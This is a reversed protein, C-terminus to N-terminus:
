LKHWGRLHEMKKGTRDVMRASRLNFHEMALYINAMVDALEDELWERNVKGTVPEAEDIGQILCRASAAGAENLEELLKGLVRVSKVDSMPVWPNSQYPTM